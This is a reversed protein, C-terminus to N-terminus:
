PGWAKRTGTGPKASPTKESSIEYFEIFNSPKQNNEASDGARLMTDDWPSEIYMGPRGASGQRARPQETGKSLSLALEAPSRERKTEQRQFKMFNSLIRTKQSNELAPLM